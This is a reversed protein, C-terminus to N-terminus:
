RTAEYMMLYAHEEGILKKIETIDEATVGPIEVAYAGCHVKREGAPGVCTYVHTDDPGACYTCGGGNACSAARTAYKDMYAAVIDEFRQSYERCASFRLALFPVAGNKKSENIGMKAIQKNHADTKFSLSTRYKVPNYGLQSLYVAVERYLEADVPGMRALLAEV